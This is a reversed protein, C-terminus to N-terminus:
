SLELCILGDGSRATWMECLQVLQFVFPGGGSCKQVTSVCSSMKMKIQQFQDLALIPLLIRDMVTVQMAQVWVVQCGLAVSIM